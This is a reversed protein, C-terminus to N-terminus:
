CSVEFFRNNTGGPGVRFRVRKGCRPCMANYATGDKNRSVRVYAGACMFRIGIWPRQGARGDGPGPQAVGELISITRSSDSVPKEM